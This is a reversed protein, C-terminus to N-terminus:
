FQSPYQKKLFEIIKPDKCNKAFPILLGELSRNVSCAFKVLDMSVNGIGCVMVLGNIMSGNYYSFKVIVSEEKCFKDKMQIYIGNCEKNKHLIYKLIDLNTSGFKGYIIDEVNGFDQISKNVRRRYIRDVFLM